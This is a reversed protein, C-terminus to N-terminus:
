PHPQASMLKLLEFLVKVFIVQLTTSCPANMSIHAMGQLKHWAEIFLKECGKWSGSRECFIFRPLTLHTLKSVHFSQRGLSGAQGLSVPLQNCQLKLLQSDIKLPDQLTGTHACEVVASLPVDRWDDGYPPYMKWMEENGLELGAHVWWSLDPM